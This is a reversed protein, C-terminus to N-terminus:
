CDCSLVKQSHMEEIRSFEQGKWLSHKLAHTTTDVVAASAGVVIADKNTVHESVVLERTHAFVLEMM